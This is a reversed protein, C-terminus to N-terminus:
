ADFETNFKERFLSELAAYRAVYKPKGHVKCFGDLKAERCCNKGDKDFGKCTDKAEEAPPAPIYKEALDDAKLGYSRELDSFVSQLLSRLQKSFHKSRPKTVGGQQM